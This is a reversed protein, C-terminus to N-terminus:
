QLALPDYSDGMMGSCVNVHQPQEPDRAQGPVHAGSLAGGRAGMGGGAMHTVGCAGRRRQDTVRMVGM